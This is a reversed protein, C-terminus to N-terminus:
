AGLGRRKSQTSNGAGQNKQERWDEKLLSLKDPPMTEIGQEQCEQVLLDILCSMQKTDYTSSGYYAIVNECGTLKSSGTRVAVWGIGNQEWASCFSEVASKKMCLINFNNGINQIMERYIDKMPINLVESLKGLLVWCYANADHSRRERHRKIEVDFRKGAKIQGAIEISLRRALARNDLAIWLGGDRYEIANVQTM